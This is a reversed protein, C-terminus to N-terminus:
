LFKHIYLLKWTLLICRFLLLITNISAIVNCKRLHIFDSGVKSLKPSFSPWSRCPDQKTELTWKTRKGRQRLGLRLLHTRTILLIVVCYILELCCNRPPPSTCQSWGKQAVRNSSVGVNLVVEQAQAVEPPQTRQLMVWAPAPPAGAKGEAHGVGGHVAGCETGASQEEARWSREENGGM